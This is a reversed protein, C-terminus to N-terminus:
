FFYFGARQLSLSFILQTQKRPAETADLIRKGTGKVVCCLTNETFRAKFGSGPVHKRDGFSAILLGPCKGFGDESQTGVQM